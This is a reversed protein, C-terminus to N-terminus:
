TVSKMLKGVLDTEIMDAGSSLLHNATELDNITYVVRQESQRPLGQQWAQLRSNKIFLYDFNLQQARDRKVEDFDPMVWGIPIDSQTTVAEIALDHKSIIAAIQDHCRASNIKAIIDDVVKDVGFHDISNSKLEVFIRMEPCDALSDLLETFRSIPNTDFKNGFRQPYSASLHEIDEWKASILERPDGSLRKLDHDHYLIPVFDATYQIDIEGWVAGTQAASKVGLLTNEPFLFPDGRHAVLKNPAIM